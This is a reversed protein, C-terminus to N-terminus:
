RWDPLWSCEVIRREHLMAQRAYAALTLWNACEGMRGRARAQRAREIREAHMQRAHDAVSIFM